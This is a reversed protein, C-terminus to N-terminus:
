AQQSFGGFTWRQWKEQQQKKKKKKKKKTMTQIERPFKPNNKSCRM